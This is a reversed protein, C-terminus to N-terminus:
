VACDPYHDAANANTRMMKATLFLTGCADQPLEGGCQEGDGLRRAIIEEM